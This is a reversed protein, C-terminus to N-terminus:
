IETVRAYEDDLAQADEPLLAVVLFRAYERIYDVLAAIREPDIAELSDLLVFPVTEHLDHVLYGALAFVLGTVERESESLHDVTDEYTAGSATARVVHLEFVTRDVKRRGERIRREVREIWVRELNAYDLIDLVSDMHENFEEVAEAEIQDIRTRLDTLEETVTQREDRLRDVEALRDEIATIRDTVDELDSELRGLEFELQNAEKHLDLVESFDESELSDVEAELDEIAEGLQDRKERLDALTEQRQELEDVTTELKREVSDRRQQQQERERQESRLDDLDDDITRVTDLKDTRVSRLQNLTTEIRDEDVESGCTWCTVAEDAVLQDTVAGDASEARLADGLASDGELMGENFQIVDQLDSVERELTQKRERLRSIEADLDNVEGMPADPLEERETELERREATLSEISEQQIDIDSRVSDLESRRDRLDDLRSELEQKEDRTEEVDADQAEIEDEKTELETRKDEIDAELSQRREELGPLEDKLGELEELEEDLRDREQELQRIEAEIADTDVPRMILEHLDAGRAVARRAENSELLFAFLDAIRANELYPKGTATVSGNTRELTRTYTEDGLDLEVHGEDADGKLTVDDSGMAAMIAHLFSTRNTANRGTLVTVGPRLEVTSGDIGGVNRMEFHAAKETARSSSM